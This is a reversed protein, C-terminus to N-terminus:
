RVKQLDGSGTMAIICINKDKKGCNGMTLREKTLEM